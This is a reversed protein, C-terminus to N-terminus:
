IKIFESLTQIISNVFDVDTGNDLYIGKILKYTLLETLASNNLQGGFLFDMNDVVKNVFLKELVKHIYKLQAILEKKNVKILGEVLCFPQYIITTKAVLKEDIHNFIKYIEDQILFEFNDLNNILSSGIIVIPKMNNKLMIKLKKNIAVWNITGLQNNFWHNILVYNFDFSKLESWSVEGLFEGFENSNMNQAGVEITSPLNDIGRIAFMGIYSPLIVTEIDPNSELRKMFDIIMFYNMNMKWNIVLKTKM